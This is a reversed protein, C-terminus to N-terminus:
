SSKMIPEEIYDYKPQYYEADLRGSELFSDTFKKISVNNETPNFDILGIEDLLIQEELTYFRESEYVLDDAKKIYRVIKEQTFTM